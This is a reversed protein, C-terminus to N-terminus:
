NSRSVVEFDAGALQLDAVQAWELRGWSQVGAGLLWVGQLGLLRFVVLLGIFGWQFGVSLGSFAEGVGKELKDSCGTCRDKDRAHLSPRPNSPMSMIM